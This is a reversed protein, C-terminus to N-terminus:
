AIQPVEGSPAGSGTRLQEKRFSRLKDATFRDLDNFLIIENFLTVLDIGEVDHVSLDEPGRVLDVLTPKTVSETLLTSVEKSRLLDVLKFEDTTKAIENLLDKKKKFIRSCALIDIKKIEFIAGSPLEILKRARRRDETRKRYEEASSPKM